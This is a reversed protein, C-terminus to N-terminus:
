RFRDGGRRRANRLVVNPNDSGQGWSYMPIASLVLGLTMLFLHTIRKM